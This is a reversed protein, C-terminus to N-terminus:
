KVLSELPCQFYLLTNKNCCDTYKLSAYNLIFTVVSRQALKHPKVLELFVKKHVIVSLTFWRKTDVKLLALKQKQM